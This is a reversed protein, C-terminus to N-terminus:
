EPDHDDGQTDPTAPAFRKMLAALVEQDAERSFPSPPEELPGGASLTKLNMLMQLAKPEGKAAQNALQKAAAELKTITRTRGGETITIRRNLEEELATALNKSGKPRGSPNGSHGKQFRTHAPPKKYGVEYDEPKAM